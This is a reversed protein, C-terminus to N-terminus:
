AARPVSFVLDLATEALLRLAGPASGLALRRLMGFNAFDRFFVPNEADQAAKL